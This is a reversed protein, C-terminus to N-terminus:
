LDMNEWWKETPPVWDKAPLGSKCDCTTKVLKKVKKGDEIVEYETTAIGTGNCWNCKAM